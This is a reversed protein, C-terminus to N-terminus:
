KTSSAKLYCDKKLTEDKIRECVSPDKKVEAVKLYCGDKKEPDDIRECIEPDKKVL